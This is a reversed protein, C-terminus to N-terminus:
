FLEQFQLVLGLGLAFFFAEHIEQATSRRRRLRALRRHWECHVGGCGVSAYLGTHDARRL